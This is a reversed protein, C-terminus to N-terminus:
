IDDMLGDRSNPEAKSLLFSKMRITTRVTVNKTSVSIPSIESIIGSFIDELLPIAANTPM